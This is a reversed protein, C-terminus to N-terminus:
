KLVKELFIKKDFGGRKKRKVNAIEILDELSKEELKAISIIVELMDALEEIRDKSNETKVQEEFEKNTKEDILFDIYELLFDETVDNLYLMQNTSPEYDDISNRTSIYDKITPHLKREIGKELDEKRKEERKKNIYQDFDYLLIQKGENEDVSDNIHEELNFADDLVKNTIKLKPNEALLKSITIDIKRELEDIGKNLENYNGLPNNPKIRYNSTLYKEEIRCLRYRLVSENKKMYAILKGQYYQRKINVIAM